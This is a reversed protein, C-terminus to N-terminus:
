NINFQTIINKLFEVENKLQEIQERYLKREQESCAQHFTNGSGIQGNNTKFNNTYNGEKIELLEAPDVELEKAITVLKEVDIKAHGNEIKNYYGQSINLIDAM